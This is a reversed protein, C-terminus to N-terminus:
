QGLVALVVGFGWCFIWYFMLEGDAPRSQWSDRRIAFFVSGLDIRGESFGVSSLEGEGEGGGNMSGDRGAPETLFRKRKVRLVM